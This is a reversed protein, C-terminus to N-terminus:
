RHRMPLGFVVRSIQFSQFSSQSLNKWSFVNRWRLFFGFHKQAHLISRKSPFRQSEIRDSSRRYKKRVFMNLFLFPLEDLLLCKELMMSLIKPVRRRILTMLCCIGDTLDTPRSKDNSNM